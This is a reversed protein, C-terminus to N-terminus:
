KTVGPTDEEPAPATEVLALAAGFPDAVVMVRGQGLPAPARLVRGGLQQLRDAFPELKDVALFGLWAPRRGAPVPALGAHASDGTELLFDDSRETRAEPQSNWGLAKAFFAQARGTDASFYEAWVWSGPALGTGSANALLGMPVGDPTQVLSAQGRNALDLPTALQRGGASVVTSAAAAPDDVGVYGVWLAQAGSGKGAPRPMIGAVPRGDPRRLIISGDAAPVDASWGLWQAYFRASGAADASFCDAWVFGSAPAAQVSMATGLLMGAMLLLPRLLRKGM